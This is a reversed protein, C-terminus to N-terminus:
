ADKSRQLTRNAHPLASANRMVSNMCHDVANQLITMNRGHDWHLIVPVSGKEGSEMMYCYDEFSTNRLDQESHFLSRRACNKRRM